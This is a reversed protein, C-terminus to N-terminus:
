SGMSYPSFNFHEYKISIESRKKSIPTLIVDWGGVGFSESPIIGKVIYLIYMRFKYFDHSESLYSLIVSLKKDMHIYFVFLKIYQIYDYIVTGM